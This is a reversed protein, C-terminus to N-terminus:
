QKKRIREEERERIQDIIILSGERNQIKKKREREEQFKLEKLRELEMMLDLKKEKQNFIENMRKHELLQKDRISAIKANLVLNNM